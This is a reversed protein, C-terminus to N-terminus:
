GQGVGLQAFASMWDEVHWTEAIRAGVFRHIDITQIAFAKGTPAHGFFPRTHTASLTSRVTLKEGERVTDEIRFRIDPLMGRVRTVIPKYAAPGPAQGPFPPHEAWDLTLLQDYDDVAGTMFPAYFATAIRVMESRLVATSPTALGTSACGAVAGLGVLGAGQLVSRKSIM